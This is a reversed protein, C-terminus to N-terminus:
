TRFNLKYGIGYINMLIDHPIKKRLSKVILKISNTKDEEDTDWLENSIDDYTFIHNINNFFLTLLKQEKARLEVPQNSFYLQNDIYQWYYNDKLILTKNSVINFDTLESIAKRLSQHLTGRTIPKVLYNTLKLGNAELLYNIENHATLVIIQTQLDNERIIKILELGNMNPLHIDVIIINPKKNHYIDIAKEATTTSYVNQYHHSLHKVMKNLVTQEDEIYLISFPKLKRSKLM